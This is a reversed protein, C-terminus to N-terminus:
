PGLDLWRSLTNEATRTIPDTLPRAVSFMRKDRAGGGAGLTTALVPGRSVGSSAARTKRVVPPDVRRVAAFRIAGADLDKRIAGPSPVGPTSPLREERAALDMNALRSGTAPQGLLFDHRGSLAFGASAFPIAIILATTIGRLTIM